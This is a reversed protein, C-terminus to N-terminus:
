VYYIYIIIIHTNQPQLSASFCQTSSSTHKKETITSLTGHLLSTAPFAETLRWAPSGRLVCGKDTCLSPRTLRSLHHGWVWVWVWVRMWMRVRVYVQARVWVRVWKCERDSVSEWDCERESVTVSKCVSECEWMSVSLSESMSQPCEKDTCLSFQALKSLHHGACECERVTVCVRVWVRM